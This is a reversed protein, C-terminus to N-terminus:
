SKLPPTKTVTDILVSRYIEMYIALHHQDILGYATLMSFNMRWNRVVDCMKQRGATGRRSKSGLM